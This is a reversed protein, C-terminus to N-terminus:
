ESNWEHKILSKPKKWPSKQRVLIESAKNPEAMIQEAVWETRVNNQSGKILIIDDKQIFSKLFKGAKISNEFKFIRNSSFGVNIVKSALYQRAPKGIVVLYDLILAAKEGVEQHGKKEYNGLENMTGLVGIKRGKILKRKDLEDLTRLAALMSSPNANYSDDIIISKKIGKIIRMRGKPLKLNRLSGIAKVLSIDYILGCAIATLIPYALHRGLVNNLIIPLSDNKYNINFKLGTLNQEFNSAWVDVGPSTGYWIIKQQFSDVMKRIRKDDKNLCLFGDKKTRELLIKKETEVQFVTKFFKLHAPGINTLIAIKPKIFSTLYNIDGPKDAALELVLKDYYNRYFYIRILCKLIIVIWGITLRPMKQGLITLPVGIETNYNGPSALVTFKGRLVCAVAEKTSSKGNSGTIAIVEPNYKELIKVSLNRLIKEIRKLFYQKM